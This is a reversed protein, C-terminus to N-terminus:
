AAGLPGRRDAGLRDRRPQGTRAGAPEGGPGGVPRSGDRDQRDRGGAARALVAAAPVAPRAQAPGHAKGRGAAPTRVGYGAPSTDWVTTARIPIRPPRAVPSSRPAPRNLFLMGTAATGGM